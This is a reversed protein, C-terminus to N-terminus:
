AVRLSVPGPFGTPVEDSYWAYELASLQGGSVWVIVEGVVDGADDVVVARVPLPGDVVAARQADDSVVLDVMTPLGDVAMVVRSQQHLVEALSLEDLCSLVWLLVAHERLCLLRM